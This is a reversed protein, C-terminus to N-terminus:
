EFPKPSFTITAKIEYQDGEKFYWHLVYPKNFEPNTPIDPKYESHTKGNEFRNEIFKDSYYIIRTGETEECGSLNLMMKRPNDQKDGRPYEGLFMPSATFYLDISSQPDATDFHKTEQPGEPYPTTIVTIRAYAPPDFSFVFNGGQIRLESMLQEMTIPTQESVNTAFVPASAALLILFITNNM